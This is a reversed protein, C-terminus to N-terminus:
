VRDWPIILRTTWGHSCVERDVRGGFEAEILRRMLTTGFGEPASESARFQPAEERWCLELRGEAQRWDVIIRGDPQRLAGYKLANTALEHFVMALMESARAGVLLRPGSLTLRNHEIDTWNFPALVAHLVDEISFDGRTSAGQSAGFALDIVSSLALIRGKLSDALEKPSQAGRASLSILAVITAMLNKLRHGMERAVVEQHALEQGLTKENAELERARIQDSRDSVVALVLQSGGTRIARLGVEIPFVSGDQRQGRLSRGPGMVRMQDVGSVNSRKVAHGNRQASPVLMEVSKGLLDNPDYGFQRGVEANVALMMGGGDVVVAGAPITDLVDQISLAIGALAVQASEFIRPPEMSDKM